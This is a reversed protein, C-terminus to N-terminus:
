AGAAPPPTTVDAAAADSREHRQQYRRRLHNAENERRRAAMEEDLRAAFVKLSLLVCLGGLLTVAFIVLDPEMRTRKPGLFMGSSHAEM